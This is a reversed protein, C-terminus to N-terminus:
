RGRRRAACESMGRTSVAPPALDRFAFLARRERIPDRCKAGARVPLLRRQWAAAPGLPLWASVAFRLLRLLLLLGCRHPWPWPHSSPSCSCFARLASLLPLRPHPRTPQTTHLFPATHPNPARPPSVCPPIARPQRGTSGMRRISPAASMTCHERGKDGDDKNHRSPCHSAAANFRYAWCCIM